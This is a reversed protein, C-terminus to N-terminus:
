DWSQVPITLFKSGDYHLSPCPYVAILPLQLKWMYPLSSRLLAATIPWENPPAVVMCVSLSSWRKRHTSCM